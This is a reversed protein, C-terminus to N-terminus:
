RSGKHNMNVMEVAAEALEKGRNLPGPRVRKWAQAENKPTLVGFLTPVGTELGVQGIGVAAWTSVYVDHSTEGKIVCGLCIIADYKKSLALKKAVFPLEFAGPVWHVHIHDKDVGLDHLEKECNNLYTRMISANFKSVLIAIRMSKTM